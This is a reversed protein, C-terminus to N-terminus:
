RVLRSRLVDRSIISLLSVQHVSTKKSTALMNHIVASLENQRAYPLRGNRMIEDVGLVAEDISSPLEMISDLRPVHFALHFAILTQSLRKPGRACAPQM